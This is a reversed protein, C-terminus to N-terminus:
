LGSLVLRVMERLEAGSKGSSKKALEKLKEDISVSDIKPHTSTDFTFQNFISKLIRYRDSESPPSIPITRSFRGSNLLRADILHPHNTAALLIVQDQECEDMESILQAMLKGGVDSESMGRSFLADIEDFFLISPTNRKAYEFANSIIKESGGVEGQLLQSIPLSIFTSGSEKAIAKALLTKGTGPPGYLLVGHPKPLQSQLETDMTHTWTFIEELLMKVERLGGIDSWTVVEVKSLFTEDDGSHGSFDNKLEELANLFDITKLPSPSNNTRHRSLLKARTILSFINAYHFGNCKKSILPYNINITDNQTHHSLLLELEAITLPLITITEKFYSIVAKHVRDPNTTIGIVFIRKSKADILFKRFVNCTSISTTDVPFLSELDDLIVIQNPQTPHLLNHLSKSKDPLIDRSPAFAVSSYNLYRITDPILDCLLLALSTKGAGPNGSLLLKKNTSLSHNGTLFQHLLVPLPTKQLLIHAMDLWEANEYQM